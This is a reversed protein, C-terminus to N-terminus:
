CYRVGLPCVTKALAVPPASSSTAAVALGASGAIMGAAVLAILREKRARQTRIASQKQSM